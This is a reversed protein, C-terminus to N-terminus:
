IALLGDMSTPTGGDDPILPTGLQERDELLGVLIDDGGFSFGAIKQESGEVGPVQSDLPMEQTFEEDFNSLHADELQVPPFIPQVKKQVVLDWDLDRFFLCSKLREFKARKAPDKVLTLECYERVGPDMDMPFHPKNEVINRFMRARNEHAFPTQGTVLEYLLIGTAWWDVEVGYPQRSVLEPAVYEGTGCFTGTKDSEDLEKALGFDTLKIHGNEDLLINELKLDRYVVGLKHLHDIALAIEAIYIRVNRLPLLGMRQMLFFLEGGPAYELGLYFKSATQFACKLSVIFPHSARGLINRESIVTHIKKAQILRTKHITKIAVLEQTEKNSCLMVKGYYGRGIVSIINFMDMSIQPNLLTCSRLHLVWRMLTDQVDAQLLLPDAGPKSLRFRPFKENELVEITTDSNIMFQLPVSTCAEERYLSLCTGSLVAYRSAWLGLVLKRDLWGRCDAPLDSM